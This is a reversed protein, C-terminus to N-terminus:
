SGSGFISAFSILAYVFTMILIKWKNHKVEGDVIWKPVYTIFSYISIAAPIGLLMLPFTILLPNNTFIVEVIFAGIITAVFLVWSAFKFQYILISFLLPYGLYFILLAPMFTSYYWGPNKIAGTTTFDVIVWFIVAVFFYKVIKNRTTVLSTNHGVNSMTVEREQISYYWVNQPLAIQDLARSSSMWMNVTIPGM